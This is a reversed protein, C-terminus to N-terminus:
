PAMAFPGSREVTKNKKWPGFSLCAVEGAKRPGVNGVMMPRTRTEGVWAACAAGPVSPHSSSASWGDEDGAHIIVRVGSALTDAGGTLERIHSAYRGNAAHFAKQLAPVETQLAAVAQTELDAPRPGCAAVALVLSLLLHRPNPM